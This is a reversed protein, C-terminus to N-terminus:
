LLAKNIRNLMENFNTKIKTTNEQIMQNKNNLEEENTGLLNLFEDFSINKCLEENMKINEKMLLAGNILNTINRIADYLNKEIMNRDAALIKRAYDALQYTDGFGCNSMIVNTIIEKYQDKKNAMRTNEIQYLECEALANVVNRMDQVTNTKLATEIAQKASDYKGMNTKPNIFRKFGISRAINSLCEGIKGINEEFPSAVGAAIDAKNKQQAAQSTGDDFALTTDNGLNTIRRQQTKDNFVDPLPNGNNDTMLETQSEDYVVGPYFGEKADDEQNNGIWNARYGTAGGKSLDSSYDNGTIQQYKATDLRKNHVPVEIIAGVANPILKRNFYRAWDRANCVFRPQIGVKQYQAYVMVSNRESLRVLEWGKGSVDVIKIKGCFNRLFSQVEPQDLKHFLQALFDDTLKSAAYYDDMTANSSIQTMLTNPDFNFPINVYIKNGQADKYCKRSLLRGFMDQWFSDNVFDEANDFPVSIRLAASGKNSAKEANINNNHIGYESIVDQCKETFLRYLSNILAETNGSGSPDTPNDDKDQIAVLRFDAFKQKKPDSYGTVVVHM